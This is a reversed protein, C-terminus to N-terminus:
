EEIVVRCMYYSSLIYFTDNNQLIYKQNPVLRTGNKLYTGFKSNTDRLVFNRKRADFYLECHDRSINNDPPMMVDCAARRGIKIHQNAAIMWRRMSKNGICLELYAMPQHGRRAFLGGKRVPAVNQADVARRKEGTDAAADSHRKETQAATDEARMLAQLDVNIDQPRIVGELEAMFEIASHYRDHYDFALARDIVDSLPRSVAPNLQCLPPYEEGRSRSIADVMHRGSLIAYFTAALAYIDTWPGQYPKASYQEYPAYSPKLYIKGTPNDSQRTFSRVAGFDILKIEGSRTIIINEPSIDGHILGFRHVEALASGIFLLMQLAMGMNQQPTHQAQFTRLNCGDLLEMVFYATGNAEFDDFIDVVSVNERLEKLTNAEEIFRQMGARFETELEPSKLAIRGDPERGRVIEAPFYEKICCLKGSPMDKAKYTIGFGGAGLECGVLYKKQLLVLPPLANGTGPSKRFGCSTCVDGSMTQQFCSPCLNESLVKM